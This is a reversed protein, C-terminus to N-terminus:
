EDAWAVCQAPADEVCQSFTGSEVIAGRHMVLILDAGRTTALRHTVSVVTVRSTRALKELTTVIHAETEFDLASTAEDLLLLRINDLITGNLIGGNQFVVATQHMYSAKSYMKVDM